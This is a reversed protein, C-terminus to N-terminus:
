EWSWKGMAKDWMAWCDQALGNADLGFPLNSDRGGQKVQQGDAYWSSKVTGKYSFKPDDTPQIDFTDFHIRWKATAGTGGTVAPGTFTVDDGNRQVDQVLKNASLQQAFSARLSEVSPKSNGCAGALAAVALLVGLLRHKVIQEQSAASGAAV